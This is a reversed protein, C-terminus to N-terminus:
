ALECRVCGAASLLEALHPADPACPPVWRLDPTLRGYKAPYNALMYRLWRWGRADSCELIYASV